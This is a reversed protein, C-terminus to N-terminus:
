VKLITKGKPKSALDLKVKLTPPKILGLDKAGVPGKTILVRSVSPTEIM